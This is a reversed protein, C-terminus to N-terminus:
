QKISRQINSNFEPLFARLPKIDSALPFDDTLKMCTGRIRPDFSDLEGLNALSFSRFLRPPPLFFSFFPSFEFSSEDERTITGSSRCEARSIVIIVIIILPLQLLSGPVRGLAVLCIRCERGKEYRWSRPAAACACACM